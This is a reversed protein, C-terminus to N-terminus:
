PYKNDAESGGFATVFMNIRLYKIDNLPTCPIDKGYIIASTKGTGCQGKVATIIGMNRIIIYGLFSEFIGVIVAGPMCLCYIENIVNISSKKMIPM